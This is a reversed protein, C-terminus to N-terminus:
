TMVTSVGAESSVSYRVGSCYWFERIRWAVIGFRGGSSSSKPIGGDGGPLGSGGSALFNSFKRSSRSLPTYKLSRSPPFLPNLFGLSSSRNRPYTPTSSSYPDCKGFSTHSGLPKGSSQYKLTSPIVVQSDAVLKCRLFLMFLKLCQLITLQM